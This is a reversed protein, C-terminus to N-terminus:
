ARRMYSNHTLTSSASVRPGLRGSTTSLLGGRGDSGRGAESRSAEGRLGTDGVALLPESDESVEGQLTLTM